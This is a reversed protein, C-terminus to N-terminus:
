HHKHHQHPHHKHHKHHKHHRHPHHRHPHHRHHKHHRHVWRRRRGGGWEASARAHAETSTQADNVEQNEDSTQAAASDDFVADSDAQLLRRQGSILQSTALMSIDNGAMAHAEMEDMQETMQYGWPEGHPLEVAPNAAAEEETQVLVEGPMSNQDDDVQLEEEGIGAWRLLALEFSFKLRIGLVTADVSFKGLNARIIGQVSATYEVKRINFASKLIKAVIKGGVYITWKGVEMLGAVVNKVITDMFGAVAKCALKAVFKAAVKIGNWVAKAAKTVTKGIWEGAKRLGKGIPKIVHKHVHKVATKVAKGVPKIVHKHVAKVVTKGAKVIAQGAKKFFKGAGWRRRRSGGWKARNTSGLATELDEEFPSVDSLDEEPESMDNYFDYSDACDEESLQGKKCQEKKLDYKRVLEQLDAVEMQIPASDDILELEEAPLAFRRIRRISDDVIQAHEEASLQV